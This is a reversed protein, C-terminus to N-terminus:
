SIFACCKVFDEIALLICVLRAASLRRSSAVSVLRVRVVRELAADTSPFFNLISNTQNKAKELANSAIVNKVLGFGPYGVADQLAVM